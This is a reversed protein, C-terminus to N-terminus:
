EWRTAPGDRELPRKSLPIQWQQKRLQAQRNAFKQKYEHTAEPNSGDNVLFEYVVAYLLVDDDMNIQQTEYKMDEWMADSMRTRYWIHLPGETDAPIVKFVTKPDGSPMMSRTRIRGIAAGPAVRPLPREDEDWYVANIDAYRLIMGEVDTVIEGTTGNLNTTMYLTYEPYWFDDFLSNYAGRLMELLPEEAHIQVDLGAVLFLRKEIREILSKITAM